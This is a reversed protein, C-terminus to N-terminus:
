TSAPLIGIASKAATVAKNKGKRAALARLHPVRATEQPARGAVIAAAVSPTLTEMVLAVEATGAVLSSEQLSVGILDDLIPWVVSLMGSHAADDLALALAKLHGLKEGWDLFAVDAVDPRILGRQWAQALATVFEGGANKIPRQTGFFNIAAAPPLPAGRRAAQVIGPLDEPSVFTSWALDLFAADGFHPFVCFYHTSDWAKLSNTPDPRGLWFRRPLGALSDPTPHPQLEVTGSVCKLLPERLPDTLYDKAIQTASRRFLAGSALELPVDLVDLQAGTDPTITDLNLRALALQLDAELAAVGADEYAKLRKVLDDATISLDVFSPESLLCPIKGLRSVLQDCRAPIVTRRQSNTLYRVESPDDAWQAFVGDIIGTTGKLARRAADIDTRALENALAFFREVDVDALRQHEERKHAVLQQAAQSLKEVSAAGREFRPLEWIEPTDEWTCTPTGLPPETAAVGWNGILATAQKATTADRSHALEELRPLLIEQVEPDPKPRAKLAKLVALTAKKTTAYLAPLAIETLQSDNVIPILRLAFQEIMSVNGTAVQGCFVDFYSLLEEDTVKLGDFLVQTQEKSVGGTIYRVASKVATGRDIWEVEFLKVILTILGAYGTDLAKHLYTDLTSEFLNLSFADDLNRISKDLCWAWFRYFDESAPPKIGINLVVGVAAEKMAEARDRKSSFVESVFEEAFEKGRTQIVAVKISNHSMPLIQIARKANVGMRVAFFGLMDEDVDVASIWGWTNDDIQGTEGWDGTRLGKLAIKQQETTGLPLTPADSLEAKDWGLEKFIAIAEDLHLNLKM